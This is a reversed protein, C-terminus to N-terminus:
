TASRVKSFGPQEPHGLRDGFRRTDPGGVRVVLCREGLAGPLHAAASAYMCARSSSWGGESRGRAQCRDRSPYGEERRERQRERTHGIMGRGSRARRFRTGSGAGARLRPIVGQAGPTALHVVDRHQYRPHQRRAVERRVQLEKDDSFPSMKKLDLHDIHINGRRERNSAWLCLKKGAHPRAKGSPAGLAVAM